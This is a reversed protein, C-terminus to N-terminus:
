QQNLDTIPPAKAAKQASLGVDVPTVTTDSFLDGLNTRILIGAALSLIVASILLLLFWFFRFGGKVKKKRRFGEDDVIAM